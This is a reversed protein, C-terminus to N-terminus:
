HNTINLVYFQILKGIYIFHGLKKHFHQKLTEYCCERRGEGGLYGRGWRWQGRGEGGTGTGMTATHLEM